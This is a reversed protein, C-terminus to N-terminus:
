IRLCILPPSETPKSIGLCVWAIGPRNEFASHPLLAFSVNTSLLRLLRGISLVFGLGLLISVGILMTDHEVTLPAEWDDFQEMVPLLVAALLSVM